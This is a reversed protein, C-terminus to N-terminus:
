RKAPAIESYGNWAFLPTEGDDAYVNKVHCIYLYHDGVDIFERLSCEIAVASHEPIQIDCGPLDKLAISFEKAKNRTRGTSSGCQMVQRALAEGPITLVVKKTERVQEGTYSTKMMAFGIIEPNLSLYTWWSVTALNTDGSPTKSCVLSVPNPSTFKAAGILSLAKM